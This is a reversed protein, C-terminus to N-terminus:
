WQCGSPGTAEDRSSPKSQQSSSTRPSSQLGLAGSAAASGTRLNYKKSPREETQEKQTLNEETEKLESKDETQTKNENVIKIKWNPSKVM